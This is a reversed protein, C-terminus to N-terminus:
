ICKSAKQLMGLANSFIPNKAVTIETIIDNKIDQIMKPILAEGEQM